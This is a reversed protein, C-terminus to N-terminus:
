ELMEKLEEEADSLDEVEEQIDGALDEKVEEKVEEKTEQKVEKAPEEVVEFDGKCEKCRQNDFKPTEATRECSKCKLKVMKVEKGTKRDIYDSRLSHYTEKIEQIIGTM